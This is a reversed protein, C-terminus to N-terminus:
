NMSFLRKLAHRSKKVQTAFQELALIYNVISFSFTICGYLWANYGIIFFVTLLLSVVTYVLLRRFTIPSLSFHLKIILGHETTIAEGDIQPTYRNPLRLIQAISFKDEAWWGQFLYKQDPKANESKILTSFRQKLQEDSIDLRLSEDVTPYFKM